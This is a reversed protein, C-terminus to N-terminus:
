LQDVIVFRLHRKFEGALKLFDLDPEAGTSAAPNMADNGFFAATSRSLGPGLIPHLLSRYGQSANAVCRGDQNCVRGM